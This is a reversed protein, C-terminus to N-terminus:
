IFKFVGGSGMKGETEIGLGANLAAREETDKYPEFPRISKRWPGLVTSAVSRSARQIKATVLM